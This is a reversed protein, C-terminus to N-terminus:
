GGSYIRIRFPTEDAYCQVDLYTSYDEMGDQWNENQAFALQFDYSQTAESFAIDNFVTLDDAYTQKGNVTANIKGNVKQAYNQETVGSLEKDPVNCKLKIVADESIASRYITGNIQIPFADALNADTQYITMITKTDDLYENTAATGNYYANVLEVTIIGKLSTETSTTQTGGIDASSFYGTIATLGGTFFLAAFILGWLQIKRSLNLGLKNLLNLKMVLIIAIIWFVVSGMFIPVGM